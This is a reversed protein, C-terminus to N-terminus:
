HHAIARGGLSIATRAVEHTKVNKRLFGPQAYAYPTPM